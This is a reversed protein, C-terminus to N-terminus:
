AHSKGGSLLTVPVAPKGRRRRERYWLSGLFLGLATVTALGGLKMVNGALLVYGRADPDYHYCFLLIKDFPSGIKGESAELLALRLNRGDTEIGYLYRTIVGDPSLVFTAAAHAYEARATDYYFQFGVADALAKSQSEEGVLFHWGASAEPRGLDTLYNQKKAAALPATERPNISVSVVEFQKGAVWDLDRMATVVGNLVLNCLMPCNYYVLNLVVPRGTAFYDALRVQRGQDDVFVLDGPVRQGLHEVIDIGQLEAPHEMIIQCHGTGTLGIVSWILGTLGYKRIM